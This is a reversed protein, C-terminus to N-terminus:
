TIIRSRREDRAAQMGDNIRQAAMALHAVRGYPKMDDDAFVVELGYEIGDDVERRLLIWEHEGDALVPRDNHKKLTTETTKM